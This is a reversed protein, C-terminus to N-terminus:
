PRLPLPVRKEIPVQDARAAGRFEPWDGGCHPEGLSFDFLSEKKSAFLPTLILYLSRRSTIATGRM